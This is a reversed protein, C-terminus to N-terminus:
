PYLLGSQWSGDQLWYMTREHLRNEIGRWFELRDPVLRYGSWHPPRPVDQGEFRATAEEIAHEFTARSDLPQSQQSAWAGIQSMRERSAFYSDGEAESVKECRGEIRIQEHMEHWFFCLSAHSNAALERGKRSEYNTYFVFGQEDYGKLLLVRAAPRGDADVTAVTMSNADRLGSDIAREYVDKFQAIAQSYIKDM